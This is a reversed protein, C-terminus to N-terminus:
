LRFIQMPRLPIILIIVFVYKQQVLAVNYRGLHTVVCFPLATCSM